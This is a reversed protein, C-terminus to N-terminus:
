QSASLSNGFMKAAEAQRVGGNVLDVVERSASLQADAPKAFLQDGAFPADSAVQLAGRFGEGCGSFFRFAGRTHTPGSASFKKVRRPIFADFM